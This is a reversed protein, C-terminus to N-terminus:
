PMPKSILCGNKFQIFQKEGDQLYEGDINLDHEYGIVDKILVKRKNILIITYPQNWYRTACIFNYARKVDWTTFITFESLGPWSYYDKKLNSQKERTEIGSHIHTLLLQFLKSAAHSLKLTADSTTEGDPFSVSQQLVIDGTDFDKDLLHITVGTNKEGFYFQWFLPTPGRYMPLMSPHINYAGFSPKIFIEEPIKYPFCAIIILDPKTSKLINSYQQHDKGTISYVPTELSKALSKISGPIDVNLGSYEVAKGTITSKEPLVVGTLIDPSLNINELFVRSFLGDMAFLLIRM